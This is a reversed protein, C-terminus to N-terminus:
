GVGNKSTTPGDTGGSGKACTLTRFDGLVRVEPPSYTKRILPLAERTRLRRTARM